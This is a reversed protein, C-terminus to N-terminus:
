SFPVEMTSESGGANSSVVDSGNPAWWQVQSNQTQAMFLSAAFLTAPGAPGTPGTAGAAGAAGAAGTAGAAGAAGTAGAAGAAGTAGGSGTSGQAALLSWFAGQDAPDGPQHGTSPQLGTWSSGNYFVVDTTNYATQSSWVGRNTLGPPGTPGAAGTPGAVGT